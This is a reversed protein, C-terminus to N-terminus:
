AENAWAELFDFSIWACYVCFPAISLLDIRLAPPGPPAVWVYVLTLVFYGLCLTLGTQALRRASTSSYAMRHQRLRLSIAICFPPAIALALLLAATIREVRGALPILARAAAVVGPEAKVSEVVMVDFLASDDTVVFVLFRGGCRLLEKQHASLKEVSMSMTERPSEGRLTEVVRGAVQRDLSGPRDALDTQVRPPTDILFVSFFSHHIMWPLSSSTPASRAMSPCLLSVCLLLLTLSFSKSM